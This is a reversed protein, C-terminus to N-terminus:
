GRPPATRRAAAIGASAASSSRSPPWSGSVSRIVAPVRAPPRCRRRCRRRRQRGDRRRARRGLEGGADLADEAGATGLVRRQDRARALGDGLELPAAEVDPEGGVVETPPSSAESACCSMRCRKSKLTPQSEPNPVLGSGRMTSPKQLATPRAGRRPRWPRRHPARGRWPGRPPPPGSHRRARPCWRARPNRAAQGVQDEVADVIQGAPRLELAHRWASSAPGFAGSSRRPDGPRGIVFPGGKPSGRSIMPAKGSLRSRDAEGTPGSLSECSAAGVLAHDLKLPKAMQLIGSSM